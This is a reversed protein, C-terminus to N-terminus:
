PAVRLVARGTVDGREVLDHVAEAEALAREVEGPATVDARVGLLCDVLHAPRAQQAVRDGAASGDADLGRWFAGAALV